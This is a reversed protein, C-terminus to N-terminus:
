IPIQNRSEEGESWYSSKAHVIEARWTLRRLPERERLVDNPLMGLICATKSTM